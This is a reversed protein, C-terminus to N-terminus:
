TRQLRERADQAGPFQDGIELARAYQKKAAAAEGSQELAVGLHYRLIASNPQLNVAQQLAPLAKDVEGAKLRTWGFTNLFAPNNTSAFQQTMLTARQLSGSDTRYTALLMALNNALINSFANKQMMTEYVQIAAEPDGSQELLGALPIGLQLPAGSADFGRQLTGIRGEVDDEGLTRALTQYPLWWNPKRSIATEAADRAAALDGRNALVEAELNKIESISIADEPIQSIHDLVSQSDGNRVMVRAWAAIPEPADAKLALSREYAAIAEEELSLGEFALGSLYHGNFFEPQIETMAKARELAESWDGRTIAIRVATDRAIMSDPARAIVSRILDDAADPKGNRALFQALDARAKLNEPEAKVADRMAQEALTTQGKLLFAQAIGLHYAIVEPDDRILLRFDAIADDARNEAISLTGRVLLAEANRPNETLITELIEHGRETDGTEIVMAALRASAVDAEPANPSDVTLSEYIQIAREPLDSRRYFDALQLQAATSDQARSRLEAEAAEFGYETQIFGVLRGIAEADDAIAVANRLSKEAKETEGTRQFFAAQQYHLAAEDAYREVLETYQQAATSLDETREALLARAIRLDRSEPKLGIGAELVGAAEDYEKLNTLVGGLLAVGEEHSPDVAVSARADTLAQENLGLQSYAAGRVALLPATEEGVDFGTDVLEIADNPLGAMVFLRGLSARARDHSEDIDLTARYHGAAQRMNGLREAIVGSLFRAESDNPDIQLVNRMEIRAKDLNGSDLFAQGDALAQAKRAEPGGCAVVTLALAVLFPVRWKVFGDNTFM